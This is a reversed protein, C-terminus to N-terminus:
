SVPVKAKERPMFWCGPIRGLGTSDDHIVCVHCLGDPSPSIWGTKGRLDRWVIEDGELKVEGCPIPHCDKGGCCSPPYWDHASAPSLVSVAVIAILVIKM